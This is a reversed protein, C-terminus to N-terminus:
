AVGPSERESFAFTVIASAYAARRDRMPRRRFFTVEASFHALRDSRRFHAAPTISLVFSAFNPACVLRMLNQALGVAFQANNVLYREIHNLGACSARQEVSLRM